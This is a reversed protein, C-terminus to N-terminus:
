SPCRTSPPKTSKERRASRPSCKGKNKSWLARQCRFTCSRKQLCKQQEIVEGALRRNIVRCPWLPFMQIFDNYISDAVMGFVLLAYCSQLVDNELCWQSFPQACVKLAQANLTIVINKPPHQSESVIQRM